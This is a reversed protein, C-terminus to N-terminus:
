RDRPRPRRRSDPRGGTEQEAHIDVARDIPVANWWLMEVGAVFNRDAISSADTAVKSVVYRRRDAAGSRRSWSRCCAGGPRRPQRPRRLPHPRRAPETLTTRWSTTSALDDLQVSGSACSACGSCRTPPTCPGSSRCTPTSARRRAHRLHRAVLERESLDPTPVKTRGQVPAPASRAGPAADVPRGSAPGTRAARPTCDGQVPRAAGPPSRTATPM